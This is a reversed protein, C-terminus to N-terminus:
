QESKRTAFDIADNLGEQTAPFRALLKNTETFHPDLEKLDSFEKLTGEFVMLKNGDFTTCGPFHADVLVIPRKINIATVALIKFNKPDPNPPEYKSDSFLKIIGM